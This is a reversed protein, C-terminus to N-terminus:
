DAKKPLVFSLMARHEDGNSKVPNAAPTKLGATVVNLGQHRVKITVTGDAATKVPEADPDGVYDAQVLAGAVPKGEYLVRLTMSDGILAPLRSAPIIQLKHTPIVPLPVNLVSRLHVAYKYTHTSSVASPVEDKGKNHEKGDATKSWVGNDMAAAVVAPQNDLNVLVLPGNATLQTPVEKGDEDYATVNKVKPLRKVADLDDSGHGYIMALQGSRQAFWLGHAHAATTSFAACIACAVWALKRFTKV